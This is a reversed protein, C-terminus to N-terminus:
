KMHPHVHFLGNVERGPPKKQLTYTGHGSSAPYGFSLSPLKLVGVQLVRSVSSCISAALSMMSLTRAVADSAFRARSVNLGDALM